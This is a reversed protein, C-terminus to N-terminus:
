KLVQEAVGPWRDLLAMEATDPQIRDEVIFVSSGDQLRRAWRGHDRWKEAHSLDLRRDAAPIEGPPVFIWDELAQPDYQGHGPSKDSTALGLGKQEIRYRVSPHMFECTNTLLRDKPRGTESDIAHYTGPTRAQRGTIANIAGADSKRIQGLAWSKVPEDQQHYFTENKSQVIAIFGPDFTLMPQLQTMMWALSIDAISTDAYGGGISSHVGPFWCQRLTKLRGPSEASPYEWITPSFAKREEDLALAHFAYEVNPAVETNVFSYERREQSFLKFGAVDLEPIGM